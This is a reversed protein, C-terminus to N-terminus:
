FNGQNKLMEMEANWQYLGHPLHTPFGHPVWIRPLSRKEPDRHPLNLLSTEVRHYFIRIETDTIYNNSM